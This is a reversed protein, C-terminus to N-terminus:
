FSGSRPRVSSSQHSMNLISTALKEPKGNRLVLGQNEIYDLIVEGDKMGLGTYDFQNPALPENLVSEKLELERQFTLKGNEPNFLTERIKVPVHINDFACWRRLLVHLAAGGIKERCFFVPNFGANSSFISTVVSERPEGRELVWKYWTGESNTSEYFTTRESLQRTEEKDDGRGSLGFAVNACFYWTEMDGM